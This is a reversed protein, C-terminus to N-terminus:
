ESEFLMHWTLHTQEGRDEFEITAVFHPYSPHEYVIKKFPVVERFISKNLFDTGDPGHMTLEWEGGPVMDMKTITNSFGNPGWWQAIHEPKTWAEWVLDIPANLMRTLRLERNKTSISENEM